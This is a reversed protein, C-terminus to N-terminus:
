KPVKVALTQEKWIRVGPIVAQDKMASVFSRIRAENVMLFARPILTENEVEFVWRARLSTGPAAAKPPIAAEAEAIAAEAKEAIGEVERAAEDLAGEDILEHARDISREAERAAATKALAAKREADFRIRDQEALYAGIKPRLIREAEALTDTWRRKQATLHRHHEFAQKIGPDFEANIRKRAEVIQILGAHAMSLREQSDIVIEQAETVLSLARLRLREREEESGKVIAANNEM